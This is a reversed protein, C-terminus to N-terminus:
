HRGGCLRKEYLQGHIGLIMDMESWALGVLFCAHERLEECGSSLVWEIYATREQTAYHIHRDMNTEGILSPINHVHEAEARCRAVDGTEAANRIAILGHTLLRLYLVDLSEM